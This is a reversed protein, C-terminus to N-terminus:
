SCITVRKYRGAGLAKLQAALREREALLPKTIADLEGIRDAIAASELTANMANM